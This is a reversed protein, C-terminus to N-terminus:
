QNDKHKIDPIFIHNTEIWQPYRRILAILLRGEKPTLWARFEFDRRSTAEDTALIHCVPHLMGKVIKLHINTLTITTRTDLNKINITTTKSTM